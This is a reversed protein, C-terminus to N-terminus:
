DIFVAPSVNFRTALKRIQKTNLTRKRHLVESVIGQSGIETLDKQKLGHEAMLYKLAAVSGEEPLKVHDSEYAEILTALTEVLRAYPHSEDAGVQDLLEDLIRVLREYETETRPVSLIQKAEKWVKTTRDLTKTM